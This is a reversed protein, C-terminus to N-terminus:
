GRYAGPRRLRAASKDRGSRSDRFCAFVRGRRHPVPGRRPRYKHGARNRHTGGPHPNCEIFYHEGREPVVLFEVTGANVYGAAGALHLADELIRQRLGVELGPAPAIEVVKQNRLQVSCDREYLHVINGHNDALIQVEIHRPRALLKEVFVSGDGFAALAESQCRAFAEAMEDAASVVRMGRGGGGASAKLMVPYGISTAVSIANEASAVARSSGLIIPIGLSHALNRAKTKDAFLALTEPAARHIHCRRRSM